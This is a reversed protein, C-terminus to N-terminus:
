KAPESRPNPAVPICRAVCCRCPVPLLELLHHSPAAEESKLGNRICRPEAADSLFIIPTNGNASVKLYKELYEEFEGSDPPAAV